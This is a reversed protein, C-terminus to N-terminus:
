QPAIAPPLSRRPKGLLHVHIYPYAHRNDPDRVEDPAYLRTWVAPVPLKRGHLTKSLSALKAQYERYAKLERVGEVYFDAAAGARHYSQRSVDKENGTKRVVAAWSYLNHPECRYGSTVVLQKGAEEQFRNLLSLLAPEIGGEPGHGGACDEYVAGEHKVTRGAQGHCLFDTEM